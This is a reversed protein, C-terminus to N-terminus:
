FLKTPKSRALKNGRAVVSGGKQFLSASQNAAVRAIPSTRIIPKKSLPQLREFAAREEMEAQSQMRLDDGTIGRLVGVGPRKKRAFAARSADEQEAQAQMRLGEAETTDAKGMKSIAYAAGLGAAVKALNRLSKKM